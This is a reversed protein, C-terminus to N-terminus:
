GPRHCVVCSAYLIPAVDRTFTPVGEGCAAVVHPRLLLLALLLLARRMPHGM